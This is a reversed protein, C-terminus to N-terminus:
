FYDIFDFYNGIVGINDTFILIGMAILLIGSFISVYPLYKSFKKFYYSFREILAAVLLFPVALGLSYFVLMLIGTSVTETNGAFILISSLIPGICPTWGAAFAMGIFFPGLNTIKGSFEILRKEQYLKKIKILGTLHIGMIIIISGGIKQFVIKNQFLIKSLATVSVGLIIFILSFGLVFWLSKVITNTKHTKSDLEHIASGTIYGIYGPVLPLVCPSLFSLIGGAFALIINLNNM